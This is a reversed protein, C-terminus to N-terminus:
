WVYGLPDDEGDGETPRPEESDASAADSPPRGRRRRAVGVGVGLALLAIAAVGAPIWAPLGSPASIGAGPLSGAAVGPSREEHSPLGAGTPGRVPPPPPPPIPLQPSSPIVASQVAEAQEVPIPLGTVTLPASPALLRPAAADVAAPWFPLGDPLDYISNGNFQLAFASVSSVAADWGLRATANPDLDLEPTAADAVCPRQALDCDSSFAALIYASTPVLVAGELLSAGGDVPSLTIAEDGALSRESAPGDVTGNVVTVAPAIPTSSGAFFSNNAPILDGQYITAGSFNTLANEAITVNSSWSQGAAPARPALGLPTAPLFLGTTNAQTTGNFWEVLPAAPDSLNQWVLHVTLNGAMLLSESALGFAPVASGNVAVTAHTRLDLVAREYEYGQSVGSMEYTPASCGPYCATFYGASGLVRTLVLEVDTANSATQNLVVAYDTHDEYSEQVGAVQGAGAEDLTGGYAWVQDPTTASPRVGAVTRAGAAPGALLTVLVAAMAWALLRRPSAAPPFSTAGAM